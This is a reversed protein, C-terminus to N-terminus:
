AEHPQAVLRVGADRREHGRRWPTLSLSSATGLSRAERPLSENSLGGPPKPRHTAGGLTGSVRELPARALRSPPSVACGHLLIARGPLLPTPASLKHGYDRPAQQRVELLPIESGCQSGPDAGTRFPIVRIHVWGPDLGMRPSVGLLGTPLLLFSFCSRSSLAMAKPSGVLM